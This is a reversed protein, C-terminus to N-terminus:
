LIKLTLIPCMRMIEYISQTIVHSLTYVQSMVKKLRKLVYRGSKGSYLLVYTVFKEDSLLQTLRYYQKNFKAFSTINGKRVARLIIFWKGVTVPNSWQAYLIPMLDALLSDGSKLKEYPVPEVESNTAASVTFFKHLEKDIEEPTLDSKLVEKVSDARVVKLTMMKGQNNVRAVVEWKNGGYTYCYVFYSEEETLGPNPIEDCFQKYNLIVRMPLTKVSVIFSAVRGPKVTISDRSKLPALLQFSNDQQSIHITHSCRVNRTSVSLPVVSEDLSANLMDESFKDGDSSGSGDSEDALVFSGPRLFKANERFLLRKRFENHPGILKRDLSSSRPAQFMTQNELRTVKMSQSKWLSNKEIKSRWFVDLSTPSYWPVVLEKPSSFSAPNSSSYVSSEGDKPIRVNSVWKGVTFMREQDTREEDTKYQIGLKKPRQQLGLSDNLTDM